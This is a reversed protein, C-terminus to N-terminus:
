QAAQASRSTVSSLPPTRKLLRSSTSAALFALQLRGPLAWSPWSERGTLGTHALAPAEPGAAKSRRQTSTSMSWWAQVDKASSLSMDPMAPLELRSSAPPLAAVWRGEILRAM